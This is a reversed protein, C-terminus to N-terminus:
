FHYRRPPPPSRRVPTVAGPCLQTKSNGVVAGNSVSISTSSYTNQLVTPSGPFNIVPLTYPGGYAYLSFVQNATSPGFPNAALDDTFTGNAYMSGPTTCLSSGAPCWQGNASLSKGSTVTVSEFVSAGLNNLTNNGFIPQNNLLLEYTVELTPM